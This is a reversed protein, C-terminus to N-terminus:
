VEVLEEPPIFRSYWDKFQRANVVHLEVPEEVAEYARVMMEYKLDVRETLVLIDIDSSATMEGRAASGFVYVKAGPDLTRVVDKVRKAM